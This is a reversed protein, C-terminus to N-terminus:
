NFLGKLKSKLKDELKKKTEEKKEDVQQKVEAKKEELKAKQSGTVVQAWDIAYKPSAYPGTLKVPIPIGELEELGEGGQGAATSVIVTKVIYDLTEAVLNVQGAGTVRLYPSKALLDQNNLVGQKIIASGSMESFDTQAPASDAPLKDGKLKAKGERIMQALNFGKVTGNEFRFSLDGNLGRKIANVSNGTTQLKAQFNGTGDFKDKEILDKLLPGAQIDKAQKNIHMIPTKGAVDLDVQGAFSGQYFAGIKQNLNIKGQNAKVTVEVQKATLKNIIMQGIKLTGNLNLSRLTDIPLLPEDGASKAGATSGEGATKPTEKVPPLYRDVNISDVDVAFGIASGKLSASGNIKTDDLGIALKNLQTVDGKTAVELSAMFRTLVQPDATEPVAIGQGTLWERLNLEALNLSGSFAPKAALNSGKLNGTLKLADSTIILGDVSLSQGDLTMGVDAALNLSMAGQKLLPSTADVQLNLGKVQMRKAAEELSVTGELKIKAKLEPEKSQLQAGLELSVPNGSQIAGSKLYFQDVTYHQGTSADDWSINANSIDVGGIVFGELGAGGTQEQNDKPTDDGEKALDDWNTAGSKSKALNLALGELGITDVELQKSLLPMLKVRVAASNVVAFPKDGFGKANSLELGGIDVGLWPFVSLKLDGAIKLDRGTQEKVQTIIEDKYDNPDVVMPLIIVAAVVLVVIVVLFGGIIKFLKGMVYEM